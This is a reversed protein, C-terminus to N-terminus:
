KFVFLPFKSDLTLPATLFGETVVQKKGDDGKKVEYVLVDLVRLTGYPRWNQDHHAKHQSGVSVDMHGSSSLMMRTFKGDGNCREVILMTCKGSGYSGMELMAQELSVKTKNFLADTAPLISWSNSPYAM